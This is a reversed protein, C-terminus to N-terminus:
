EDKAYTDVISVTGYAMRLSEGAQTDVIMDWVMKGVPLETTVSAPISVSVGEASCSCHESLDVSTSGDKSQFAMRPTSQSHDVPNGEEDKHEITFALSTSQPIVLNVEALGKGGIETAM